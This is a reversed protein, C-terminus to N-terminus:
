TAPAHTAVLARANGGYDHHLAVHLGQAELL